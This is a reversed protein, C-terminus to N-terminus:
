IPFGPLMFAERDVDFRDKITFLRTNDTRLLNLFTVETVTDAVVTFDFVAKRVPRLIGSLNFSRLDVKDTNVTNSGRLRLQIKKGNIPTSLKLENFGDDTMDNNSAVADDFDTFASTNNLRYAVELKGTGTLVLFAEIAMWMKDWTELTATFQPTILEWTAAFKTWNETQFKILAENKGIYLFPDSDSTTKIVASGRM